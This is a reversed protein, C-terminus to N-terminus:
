MAETQHSSRAVAVWRMVDPQALNKVKAQHYSEAYEEMAQILLKLVGKDDFFADADKRFYYDLTEQATKM